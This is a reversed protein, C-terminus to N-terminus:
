SNPKGGEIGQQVGGRHQDIGWKSQTPKRHSGAAPEGRPAPSEAELARERADFRSAITIEEVFRKGLGTNTGLKKLQYQVSKQPTHLCTPHHLRKWFIGM